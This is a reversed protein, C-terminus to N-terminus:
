CGYIVELPHQSEEPKVELSVASRCKIDHLVALLEAVDNETNIADPRYFGLLRDYLKGNIEKTCGIHICGISDGYERLISPKENLMPTHSLDWLIYVNNYTERIEEFVKASFEIPSLLRKQGM